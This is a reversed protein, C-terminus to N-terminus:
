QTFASLGISRTCVSFDLLYLPVCLGASPSPIPPVGLILELAEPSLFIPFILSTMRVFACMAACHDPFVGVGVAPAPWSGSCAWPLPVAPSFCSHTVASSATGRACRPIAANLLKGVSCSKPKEEEAL